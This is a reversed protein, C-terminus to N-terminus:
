RSPARTSGLGPCVGSGLGHAPLSPVIMLTRRRKVRRCRMNIRWNLYFVQKVVSRRTKGTNSTGRLLIGADKVNEGLIRNVVRFNSEKTFLHSRKIQKKEVRNV